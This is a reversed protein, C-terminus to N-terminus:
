KRLNNEIKNKRKRFNFKYTKQDDDDDNKNNNIINIRKEIILYHSIVNFEYRREIIANNKKMKLISRRSRKVRKILAYNIKNYRNM